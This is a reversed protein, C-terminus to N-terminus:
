RRNFIAEMGHTKGRKRQGAQEKKPAALVLAVAGKGEVGGVIGLAHITGDEEELAALVAADGIGFGLVNEIM